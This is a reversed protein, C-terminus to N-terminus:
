KQIFKLIRDEAKINLWIPNAWGPEVFRRQDTDKHLETSLGHRYCWLKYASICGVGLSKFHDELDNALDLNNLLLTSM